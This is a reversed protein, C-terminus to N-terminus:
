WTPICKSASATGAAYRTIFSAADPLSRAWRFTAAATFMASPMAAYAARPWRHPDCVRLKIAHGARDPWVHEAGPAGCACAM